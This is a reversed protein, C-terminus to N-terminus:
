NTVFANYKQCYSGNSPEHVKKKKKKLKIAYNANIVSPGEYTVATFSTLFAIFSFMLLHQLDNTPNEFNDFLSVREDM